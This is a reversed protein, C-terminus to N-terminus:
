ISFIYLILKHLIYVASLAPFVPRARGNPCYKAPTLRLRNRTRQYMLEKYVCRMSGAAPPRKGQMRVFMNM